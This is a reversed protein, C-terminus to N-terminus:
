PQERKVPPPPAPPPPPLPRTLPPWGTGEYDLNKFMARSRRLKEFRRVVAGMAFGGVGCLLGPWYSSARIVIGNAKLIWVTFDVVTYVVCFGCLAWWIREKM